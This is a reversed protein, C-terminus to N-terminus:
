NIAATFLVEETERDFAWVRTQDLAGGDVGWVEVIIWASTGDFTGAEVHYPVSRVPPPFQTTLLDAADVAPGGMGRLEVLSDHRLDDAESVPEGYAAPRPVDEAVTGISDATYDRGPDQYSVYKASCGAAGLLLLALLVLALVYRHQGM